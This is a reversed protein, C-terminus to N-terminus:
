YDWNEHRAPLRNLLKRIEPWEPMHQDMLAVFRPGHTPEILHALEHVVIYELCERPKKALETNVRITRAVPNSSGWRTKMHQIYFGDVRVKLRPAWTELLQPVSARLLHRYWASVIAERVAEPTGPRVQLVLRSHTLTVRPASEAEVLKLLYRKGWVHHSERELYERPSERVQDRMAKQQQRIWGLKAIAFLRLTDLGMRKPAAIRVRGTPPHVSLHVNKIDKRVVDLTIGGLEIAEPM